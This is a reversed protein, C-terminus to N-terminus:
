GPLDDPLEDLIDGIQLQGLFLMMLIQARGQPHLLTQPLPRLTRLALAVRHEHQTTVPHLLSVVLTLLFELLHPQFQLRLQVRLTEDLGVVQIRRQGLRRTLLRTSSHGLSRAYATSCGGEPAAHGPVTASPS